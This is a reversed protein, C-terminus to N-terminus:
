VNQKPIKQHYEKKRKFFICAGLIGLLFYISPEPVAAVFDINLNDFAVNADTGNNPITISFGIDQGLFLNDSTITYNYTFEEFTGSAPLPTDSSDFALLNGGATLGLDTAPDFSALPRNNFDGVDITVVYNGVELPTGAFTITNTGNFEPSLNNFHMLENGATPVLGAVAGLFQIDSVGLDWEGNDDIVSSAIIEANAVLSFAFIIAFLFINKKSM